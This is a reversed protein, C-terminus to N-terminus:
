EPDDGAKVPGSRPPPLMRREFVEVRNGGMKKAAYCVTDAEAILEGPERHAGTLEALGISVGVRFLQQHHRFRYHDIVSILANAAELGQALLCHELLVCFEDGGIRAVTDRSRVNRSILAAIERLAADGAAHGCADNLIKFHDLDLALLVHHVGPSYDLILRNIRRRVERRNVLATLDDHTSDHLLQRVAQHSRGLEKIYLALGMLAGRQDFIGCLSCEIAQSTGPGRVLRMRCHEAGDTSLGLCAAALEKGALDREAVFERLMDDPSPWSGSDMMGSAKPNLFRLDGDSDWVAIGDPSSAFMWHIWQDPLPSATRDGPPEKRGEPPNPCHDPAPPRESLDSRPKRGLIAISGNADISTPESRYLPLLYEIFAELETTEMQLTRFTSGQAFGDAIRTRAPSVAAANLIRAAATTNRAM